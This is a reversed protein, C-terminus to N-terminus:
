TASANDVARPPANAPESLSRWATDLLRQLHLGRRVDLEHSRRTRVAAAFERRLLPWCEGHDIGATDYHHVGEPGFLDVTTEPRHLGIMGSLSSQSVVGDAHHCTLEIWTRPDGAARVAVVPSLAAELLDLVHPGLDFLAGSVLRWRTAQEGGLFGGHLYCSRAGLAGFRSAAEVFARTVPHYRKTLVLQTVVGAQAVAEALRCASAVDLAVPKELLLARGAGAARVALDAQIDPPVAFAVAECHDVLEEFSDVAVTAHARALSRAADPRRAWVAALRTEPGAALTPAHMAQAWPGAGVLGVEVPRM